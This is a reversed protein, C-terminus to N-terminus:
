RGVTKEGACSRTPSIPTQRLSGSGQLLRSVPHIISNTRLDIWSKASLVMGILYNSAARRNSLVPPIRKGLLTGCERDPPYCPPGWPGSRPYPIALIINLHQCCGEVHIYAAPEPEVLRPIAIIPMSLLPTRSIRRAAAPGARHQGALRGHAMYPRHEFRGDRDLVQDLVIRGGNRDVADAESNAAADGRCQEAAVAGTSLSSM